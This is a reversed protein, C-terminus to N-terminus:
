PPAALGRPLPLLLSFRTCGPQSECELLGGHRQVIAQALTLGLGTGDERGTVLPLFIREQLAAPVGPGNDIVDLVLAVRQQRQALAVQHAVRTRLLIRADGAAIRPALAQAANRVINLLAQVLQARDGRLEPISADYDRLLALGAGYEAQVLARVHECVEHINVDALQQPQRHPELLRDVLARLRDAERIIVRTYDALEPAPLELELLQAAGRIGGLPNRIEHALNRVLERHAEGQERLREEREHRAQPHLPWLQLLVGPAPEAHRVCAQLPVRGYRPSLLEAAFHLETGDQTGAGALARQLPGPDALLRCFDTGQLVRRSLGLADELATNAFRLEGQPGLLAVPTSIWDLALCAEPSAAITPTQM